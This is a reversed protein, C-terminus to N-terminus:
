GSARGFNAALIRQKNHHFTNTHVMGVHNSLAAKAVLGRQLAVM